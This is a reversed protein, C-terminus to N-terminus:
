CIALMRPASKHGYTFASLFTYRTLQGYASIVAMRLPMGITVYCFHALPYMMNCNGLQMMKVTMSPTPIGSCPM